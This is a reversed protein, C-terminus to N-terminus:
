QVVGRQRVLRADYWDGIRRSTKPVWECLAFGLMVGLSVSLLGLGFVLTLGILITTDAAANAVPETLHLVAPVCAPVLMYPTKTLCWRKGDWLQWTARMRRFVRQVRM